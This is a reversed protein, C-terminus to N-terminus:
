TRALSIFVCLDLTCTLVRAETNGNHGMGGEGEIRRRHHRQLLQAGRGRIDGGEEGRTARRLLKLTLSDGGRKKVACSDTHPPPSGLVAATNGLIHHLEVTCWSAPKEGAGGGGGM